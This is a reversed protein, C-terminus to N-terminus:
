FIPYIALVFVLVTSLTLFVISFRRHSLAVVIGLFGWFLSFIIGLIITNAGLSLNNLWLFLRLFTSVGFLSTFVFVLRIILPMNWTHVLYGVSCGLVYGVLTLVPLVALFLIVNSFLIGFSCSFAIGFVLSGWVASIRGARSTCDILYIETKFPKNLSIYGVFIPIVILPIIAAVTM